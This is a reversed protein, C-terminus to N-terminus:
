DLLFEELVVKGKGIDQELNGDYHMIDHVYAQGTNKWTSDYFKAKGEIDVLRRWGGAWNRKQLVLPVECGLLVVVQDGVAVTDRGLGFQGNDMLFIRRGECADDRVRAYREAIDSTEPDISHRSHVYGRTPPNDVGWSSKLWRPDWVRESSDKKNWERWDMPEEAWAGGTVTSAFKRTMARDAWPGGVVAEWREFVKRYNPRGAAIASFLWVSPGVAIIKGVPFGQAAIVSDMDLETRLRAPLGGSASWKQTQLPYYHPHELDGSWFLQARSEDDNPESAEATFDWCWKVPSFGGVDRAFLGKEALALPVLTHYRKMTDKSMYLCLDGIKAKYNVPVTESDASPDSNLLGIFAYM